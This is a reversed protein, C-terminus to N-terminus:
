VIIEGTQGRGAMTDPSEAARSLVAFATLFTGVVGDGATAVLDLYRTVKRGDVRFTFWGNDDTASPLAASTGDSLTGTAFNAGAVDTYADGVGDDDSEQLKLAAMAIDTAGLHVYVDIWDYGKRDVSATVWSANDVIAQPPTIAVVKTDMAQIM